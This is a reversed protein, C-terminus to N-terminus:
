IGVDIGKCQSTHVQATIEIKITACESMIETYKYFM